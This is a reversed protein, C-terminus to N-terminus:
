SGSAEGCGPVCPPGVLVLLRDDAGDLIEGIRYRSREIEAATELDLPLERSLEDPTIFPAERGVPPTSTGYV